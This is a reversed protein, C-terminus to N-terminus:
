KSAEGVSPVPDAGEAPEDFNIANDPIGFLIPPDQLQLIGTTKLKVWIDKLQEKLDDDMLEKLTPLRLLHNLSLMAHLYAPNSDVVKRSIEAVFAELEKKTYVKPAEQESLTEVPM